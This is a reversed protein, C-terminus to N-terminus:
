YMADIPERTELLILKMEVLGSEDVWPWQCCRTNDYLTFRQRSALTGLSAYWRKNEGFFTENLAVRYLLVPYILRDDFEAPIPSLHLDVFVRQSDNIRDLDAPAVTVVQTSDVRHADARYTFTADVPEDPLYGTDDYFVYSIHRYGSAPVQGDLGFSYISGSFSELVSRIYDFQEGTTWLLNMGVNVNPEDAALLISRDSRGNKMLTVSLGPGHDPTTFNFARGAFAYTTDLRAAHDMHFVAPMPKSIVALSDGTEEDIAVFAVSHPPDLSVKSTDDSADDEPAVKISDCSTIVVSAITLLVLILQFLLRM